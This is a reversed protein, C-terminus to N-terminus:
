DDYDDEDSEYDFEYEFEYGLKILIEKYISGMDGDWNGGGFHGDSHYHLVGGDPTTVSCSTDYILGCEECDWTSETTHIKILSM